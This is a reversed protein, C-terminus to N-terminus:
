WYMNPLGMMWGDYQLALTKTDGAGNQASITEFRM